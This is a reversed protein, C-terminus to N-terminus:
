GNRVVIKYGNRIDYNGDRENWKTQEDRYASYDWLGREVVKGSEDYVTVVSDDYFGRDGKPVNRSATNMSPYSARGHARDTRGGVANRSRLGMTGKERAVNTEKAMRRENLAQESNGM